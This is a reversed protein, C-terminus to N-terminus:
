LTNDICSSQHVNVSHETIRRAHVILRCSNLKRPCIIYLVTKKKSACRFYMVKFHENQGLSFKFNLDPSAFCCRGGSQNRISDRHGSSMRKCVFVHSIAM